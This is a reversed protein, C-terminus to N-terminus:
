VTCHVHIQTPTVHCNMNFHYNVYFSTESETSLYVLQRDDHWTQVSRPLYTLLYPCVVVHLFWESLMADTMQGVTVSVCQCLRDTQGDSQLCHMSM